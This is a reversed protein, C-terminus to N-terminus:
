RGQRAAEANAQFQRHTLTLVDDIRNKACVGCIRVRAASGGGTYQDGQDLEVSLIAPGGREHMFQGCEICRENM